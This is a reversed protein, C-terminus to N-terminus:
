EHVMSGSYRAVKIIALPRNSQTSAGYLKGKGLEAVLHERVYPYMYAGRKTARDTAFIAPNAQLVDRPSSM